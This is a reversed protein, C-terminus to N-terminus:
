GGRYVAIDYQEFDIEEAAFLRLATTIYSAHEAGDSGIKEYTTAARPMRRWELVPTDVSFRLRGYSERRFWEASEGVVGQRVEDPSAMGPVDPFDVFVMVAKVEGVAPQDIRRPESTENLNENRLPDLEPVFDCVVNDIEWMPLRASPQYASVVLDDIMAEWFDGSFSDLVTQAGPDLVQILLTEGDEGATCFLKASEDRHNEVVFRCHFGNEPDGSPLRWELLDECVGFEGVVEVGVKGAPLGDGVLSAKSGRRFGIGRGLEEEFTNPDLRFITVAVSKENFISIDIKPVSGNEDLHVTGQAM